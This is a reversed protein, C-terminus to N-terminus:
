QTSVLKTVAYIHISGMKNESFFLFIFNFEVKLNLENIRVVSYSTNYNWAILM